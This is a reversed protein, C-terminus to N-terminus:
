LEQVFQHVEASLRGMKTCHEDYEPGDPDLKDAGFARDFAACAGDFQEAYDLLARLYTKADRSLAM